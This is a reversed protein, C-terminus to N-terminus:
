LGFLAITHIITTATYEIFIISHKSVKSYRKYTAIGTVVRNLIESWHQLLAYKGSNINGWGLPAHKGACMM